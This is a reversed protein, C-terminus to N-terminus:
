KTEKLKWANCDNLIADDVKNICVSMLLAENGTTENKGMIRYNDKSERIQMNESECLSLFKLLLDPNYYYQGAKCFVEKPFRSNIKREIKCQKVSDIVKQKNVSIDTMEDFDHIVREYPPYPMKVEEGSKTIIKGELEEPYENKIKALIHGDTAIVYGKDHYIGTINEKGIGKHCLDYLNVKCSPKAQNALMFQKLYMVALECNNSECVNIAKLILDEQCKEM